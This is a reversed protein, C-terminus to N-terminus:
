KKNSSVPKIKKIILEHYLDALIHMEKEELGFNTVENVGIRFAPKDFHPLKQFTNVIIGIDLLKEAAEIAPMYNNPDLWVQHCATYGFKKGQVNFGHNDLVKAFAQANNVMQQAYNNGKKNKFELLTITLAIIDAM